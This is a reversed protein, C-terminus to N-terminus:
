PTPAPVASAAPAPAAFSAPMRSRRFLIRHGVLFGIVDIAAIAFANHLSGRFVIALGTGLAITALVVGVDRAGTGRRDVLGVALGLILCFVIDGPLGFEIFGEVPLPLSNGSDHGSTFAARLAPAQAIQPRIGGPIPQLLLRLLEKGYEYGAHAPVVQRVIISSRVTDAYNNVYTSPLNPLGTQVFYHAFSPRPAVTPHPAVSPRHSRVHERGRPVAVSLSQAPAQCSAQSGVNEWRRLEGVGVFVVAGVLGAATVRLVLQRGLPRLAAYLVLLQIMSVLVLLRSGVSLLLLFAVATAALVAPSNRRDSLWNEGLHAYAAYKAFSIGWILYTLGANAAASNNLNQFYCVPGGVKYVFAALSILVIAAVGMLPRRGRVISAAPSLPRAPSILRAARTGVAISAIGLSWLVLGASLGRLRPPSIWLHRDFALLLAPLSALMLLCLAMVLRARPGRRDDALADWGIWTTAALTAAALLEPRAPPALIALLFCALMAGGMVDPRTVSRLDPRM